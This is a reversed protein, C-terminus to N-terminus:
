RRRRWAVIGLPALLLLLMPIEMGRENQGLTFTCGGSSPTPTPSPARPQVTAAVSLPQPTTTAVADQAQTTVPTSTAMQTPVPTPTATDAAATPSATVPVATFTPTPIPTPTHTPTPSPTLTPPLTPTPSPTQTPTSPPTPVLTPTPTLTPAFTSTPVVTPTPLPTPPQTPTNTPTATSVPPITPTPTASPMATPPPTPTHTPTPVPTPTPSPLAIGCTAVDDAILFAPSWGSLPQGDEKVVRVTMTVKKWEQWRHIPLEGLSFSIRSNEPNLDGRLVSIVERDYDTVRRFQLYASRAQDIGDVTMHVTTEYGHQSDRVVCYPPEPSIDKIEVPYAPLPPVPAPSETSPRPTTAFLNLYMLVRARNTDGVYLNDNEDFTATYPMSGFDYLLSTPLTEPGLPDDYVGVFGTGAYANYGVVMRNTSDFAPEWTAATIPGVDIRKLRMRASRNRMDGWLNDVGQGSRLFAKTAPPGFVAQSNSPETVSAPFVLLRRNGNVELAHDSVYLNGLRDISLAGSFCLVDNNRGSEIAKRDVAPFRGRNCERSNADHQGLVVDVVPVTLPDRIRVVRHNDTDSIWLREGNGEPALGFIRRGLTVRDESGLVPFSVESKWITHVPVSFETLPLKYVDLYELGERGLVWLRGAEDAKIKGCCDPWNDVFFEDGVIGDALRGNELTSLGNWFMLRAHDSVILQDNVAVVGSTSQMGRRDKFNANSPPYFLRRDASGISPGDVERRYADAPFRFVDATALFVPVLVNGQADIGISGAIPCMHPSRPLEWRPAGCERSPRYSDKGLVTTVSKGTADWLEVMNNGADLVWVGKGAPDIEVSTPRHFRSGFEGDAQMGSEFPPSFTLVRNNVTDAIYLTGDQDFRVASPAHLEDLEGGPQASTFDVQGLVVDPSKLIQGSDPNMPFRLVRNNGGDAIWLNGEPDIEVGNGYWNTRGHNTLSHFCLSEATPKKFKGRNCLNESFDEQGWVEEAVLDNEFPNDYKLVRHNFSDPVYLAGQSDVTMTVFTHAEGPSIGHETIGCLTDPGALPRHPYNQVGSDGNCAAHDYTSPQGIAFEAECPGPGEYCKALDIGLIRSNGSDWVYAKGPDVSRDVVVGGPNFVKFPVVSNDGIQTFDPKGIVVDAWLDGTIGRIPSPPRFPRLFGCTGPKDAVIFEHSWGSPTDSASASAVRVRLTNRQGPSWRVGINGMDVTIRRPDLWNVGEAIPGTVTETTVELFELRGDAGASTLNEGTVTLRRESEYSSDQLVCHPSGPEVSHIVARATQAYLTDPGHGHGTWLLGATLVSMCIVLVAVHRHFRTM